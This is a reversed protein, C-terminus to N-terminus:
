ETKSGQEFEEGDTTKLGDLPVDLVGALRRADQLFSEAMKGAGILAHVANDRGIAHGIQEATFLAVVPVGPALRTIKERGDEGGDSAEVLVGALASKQSTNKLSASVKDFGQVLDGSRRALGLRDLCRKLLLRQVDEVLTAPVEARAKAARAFLGKAAATKVMDLRASLWLGRGPLKGAADFVVVQEPGIVFRLMQATSKTEGTVICRREVNHKSPAAM